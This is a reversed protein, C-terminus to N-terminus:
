KKKPRGGSMRADLDKEVEKKFESYEAERARKAYRDLDGEQIREIVPLYTCRCHPHIPLMREKGVEYVKEDLAKCTKCTRRDWYASHEVKKIVSKNSELSDMEAVYSVRVTETRAVRLANKYSNEIGANIRKAIKDMGEGNVASQLIAERLNKILKNKNDWIRDSFMAGSWPYSIAKEVAKPNLMSLNAKVNIAKGLVYINRIYQDKYIGKLANEVANKENTGMLNAQYKIKDLLNTLRNYKNIEDVSWENLREYLALIENKINKGAKKYYSVLKKELEQADEFAILGNNLVEAQIRYIVKERESSSLHRDLSEDIADEHIPNDRLRIDM